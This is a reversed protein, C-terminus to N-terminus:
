QIKVNLGRQRLEAILEKTASQSIAQKRALYEPPIKSPAVRGRNDGPALDFLEFAAVRKVSFKNVIVWWMNNM